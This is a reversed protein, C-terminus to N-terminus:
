NPTFFTISDEGKTFFLSHEMDWVACEHGGGLNTPDPRSFAEVQVQYNGNDLEGLAAGNDFGDPYGPAWGGFGAWPIRHSPGSILNAGYSTEVEWDWPWVGIQYFGIGNVPDFGPASPVASWSLDINLEPTLLADLNRPPPFTACATWVDTQTTGAIPNGLANLLTFTYAQGSIPDGEFSQLFRFESVFDVQSSFIDTYFPVIVVTGDPRDVQMASSVINTYSELLTTRHITEEGRYGHHVYVDPSFYLGPVPIDGVPPCETRRRDHHKGSWEANELWETRAHGGAQDDTVGSGNTNVVGLYQIVFPPGMEPPPIVTSLLNLDYVGGGLHIARMSMPAMAEEGLSRMCGAAVFEDGTQGNPDPGLDNIFIDFALPQGGPDLGSVVFEWRGRLDDVGNPLTAFAEGAPLLALLLVLVILTPRRCFSPIGPVRTRGAAFASRMVNSM